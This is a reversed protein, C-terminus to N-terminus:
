AIFSFQREKGQSIRFPTKRFLIDWDVKMECANVVFSHYGTQSLHVRIKSIIM